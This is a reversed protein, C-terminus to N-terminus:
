GIFHWKFGNFISSLFSTGGGGIGDIGDKGYFVTSPFFGAGTSWNIHYIYTFIGDNVPQEDM